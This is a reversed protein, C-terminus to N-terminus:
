APKLGMLNLERELDEVSYSSRFGRELLWREMEWPTPSAETAVQSLTVKGSLFRGGSVREYL